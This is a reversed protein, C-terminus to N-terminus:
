ETKLSLPPFDPPIALISFWAAAQDSYGSAASPRREFAKRCRTLSFNTTRRPVFSSVFNNKIRPDRQIRSIRPPRMPPSTLTSSDPLPFFSFPLLFTLRPRQKRAAKRALNKWFLTFNYFIRGRIFNLWFYLKMRVNSPALTERIKGFNERKKERGKFLYDGSRSERIRFEQNADRRSGFDGWVRTHECPDGKLLSIQGSVISLFFLSIQWLVPSKIQRSM